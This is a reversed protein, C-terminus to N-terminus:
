EAGINLLLLLLSSVRITTALVGYLHGAIWLFLGDDDNSHVEPERRQIRRQRSGGGTNM